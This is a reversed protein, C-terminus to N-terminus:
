WVSLHGTRHAESLPQADFGRARKTRWAPCSSALGRARDASGVRLGPFALARGGAAPQAASRQPVGARPGRTRVTAPHERPRTPRSRPSLELSWGTGLAAGLRRPSAGQGGGGRPEPRRFLLPSVLLLRRRGSQRRGAGRTEERRWGPLVLPSPVPVGALSRGHGPAAGRARERAAPRPRGRRVHHQGCGHALVRLGAARLLRVSIGATHGTGRRGWHRRARSPHRRLRGLGAQGLDDLLLHTSCLPGPPASPRLPTPPCAGVGWETVGDGRTRSLKKEAGRYQFNEQRPREPPEHSVLIYSLSCKKSPILFFIQEKPPIM